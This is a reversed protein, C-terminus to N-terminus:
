PCAPTTATYAFCVSTDPGVHWRTSMNSQNAFANFYFIWDFGGFNVDTGFGIEDAWDNANCTTGRYLEADLPYTGPNAVSVLVGQYRHGNTKYWCGQFMAEPNVAVKLILTMSEATTGDTAKLHISYTGTAVSSGVSISVRSSGAGPAPIVAPNFKVSVGGPVNSASLELAHSYGTVIKSTIKVSGSQGDAITISAPSVSVTFSSGAAPVVNLASAAMTQGSVATISVVASSDLAFTSVLASAGSDGRPVSVVDPVSAVSADSSKLQISLGGDPAPGSLRVRVESSEGGAVQSRSLTVQSVGVANAPKQAAAGAFNGSSVLHSGSGCGATWLLVLVLAIWLTTRPKSIM